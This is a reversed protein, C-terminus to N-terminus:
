RIGHNRSGQEKEEDNERGENGMTNMPQLHVRMMFTKLRRENTPPDLDDPLAKVADETPANTFHLFGLKVMKRRCSEVVDDREHGDIFIGKKATLM